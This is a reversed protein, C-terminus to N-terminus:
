WRDGRGSTNGGPPNHVWKWSREPLHVVKAGADFVKTWMAYDNGAVIDTANDYSPYGPFEGVRLIFSRRVLVTVPFIHPHEPDWPVNEFQPFPDIGNEVDFWPFVVDADNELACQALHELHFPYLEDDDDLFAVWETAAERIARNRTLGHGEHLHDFAINIAFPTLTQAAASQVARALLASRPAISPICVTIKM